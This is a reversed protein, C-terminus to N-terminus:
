IQCRDMLPYASGMAMLASASIRLAASIMAELM